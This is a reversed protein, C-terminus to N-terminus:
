EFAHERAGGRRDEVSIPATLRKAHNGAVVRDHGRDSPGHEAM